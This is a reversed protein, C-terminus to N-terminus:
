EGMRPFKNCEDDDNMYPNTQFWGQLQKRKTTSQLTYINKFTIYLNKTYDIVQLTNKKSIEIVSTTSM